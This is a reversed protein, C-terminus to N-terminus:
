TKDAGLWSLVWEFERAISDAVEAYKLASPLVDFTYTEIEAHACAGSRLWRAFAPALNRRTSGLAEAGAWFMPVHFHVRVEEPWAGPAIDRLFEPLDLWRRLSGGADRGTVQHLYVPETFPQLAERLSPGGSAQLAASLQVKSIRIGATEYEKVADM